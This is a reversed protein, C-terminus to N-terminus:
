FPWAKCFVSKNKTVCTVWRRGKTQRGKEDHVRICQPQVISTKDKGESGREKNKIREAVKAAENERRDENKEDEQQRSMRNLESAKGARGGRPEFGMRKLHGDLIEGNVAKTMLDASNEIGTVKRIGLEGAKVKEQIWLHQVKIHRCRGGLGSRHTIGIAANSDSRVIGKLVIDFDAALSMIGTVQTAAKTLAYLEAEGSSLALTSQSTSWSKLVHSGWQIVGGSTSKLTKQDGAWDSDAYADLEQSKNEWPFKQILRPRGKIYRVLRKLNEWGKQTPSSMFKSASKCAFQLDPRDTSIYNIRAAISRFQTAEQPNLERDSEEKEISHGVIPTVVEKANELKMEKILLDAHRQDAEYELGTNTWRIVRSLIKVEREQGEEPGLVDMKIDYKSGMKEKLWKLQSSSATVAFDDGHVTMNIDRDRHIFNCPSSRGVIFGWSRLTATYEASWNQAADRTGYLSLELRGIYGSDGEEKDEDPIEIFVPRKSPAYFYASKIDIVAMRKRHSGNQGKACMATLFKLTELPPTAAFLDLRNDNKIERGVLRSRYNPNAEDGKNTDLWKTTIVKVGLRQSEERKVKKYVGMKKFYNMELKRADIVKDKDLAKFGNMDDVFQVGRYFERWLEDDNDHPHMEESKELAGIINSIDTVTRSETPGKFELQNLMTNLKRRNSEHSRINCIHGLIRKESMLVRLRRKKIERDNDQKPEDEKTEEDQEERERKRDKSRNEEEADVQTEEMEEDEEEAEDELGRKYFDELSMDEDLEPRVKRRIRVEDKTGEMEREFRKRCEETHPRQGLGIISAECGLCGETRGHRELLPATIRFDRGKVAEPKKGVPEIKDGNEGIEMGRTLREPLTEQQDEDKPNPNRPRARVKKVKDANWRVTMPKRNVTRVRIAPGGDDLVVLHENTKRDVGVWTADVWRQRLSLKKNTKRARMPKALVQEGMEIMPKESVKGMRRQYPVKGDHGVQYRDLLVCAHEGIWEMIPWQSEVKEKLRFELGIKGARVQGMYDQVAKEAAGNSQPDYAPPNQIITPHNRRRKIEDMLQILAPEGDGKLIIETHGMLDIDEIVKNVAWKDSIGKSECVHAFTSVTDKDRGVIATAKDDVDIEQGFSKYDLVITPKTSEGAKRHSDEKGKAKVCIPCWRRFPLHTVCHNEFEEDTPDGPDRAIRVPAEEAPAATVSEGCPRCEMEDEQAKEPADESGRAENDRADSWAKDEEARAGEETVAAKKPAALIDQRENPRLGKERTTQSMM